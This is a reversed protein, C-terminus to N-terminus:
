KGNEWPRKEQPTQFFIGILLLDIFSISIILTLQVFASKQHYMTPVDLQLPITFIYFSGKKPEAASDVHCGCAGNHDPAKDYDAGLRM